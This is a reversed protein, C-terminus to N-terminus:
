KHSSGHPGPRVEDSTVTGWHTPFKRGGAGSARWKRRMRERRAISDFVARLESENLPPVNAANWQTLGGWGALRWLDEPLRRLIAGALATAAANRGGEAVGSLLGHWSPSATHQAVTEGAGHFTEWADLVAGVDRVDYPVLSACNDILLRCLFPGGRGKFQLTGPVRFVQTLLAANEDGRLAHILRLNVALAERVRAEESLPRVRFVAHFGHRTESLWHPSLPFPLLRNTLWEQKRADIEEALLSHREAAGVLDVDVGLNRFSLLGEKTRTRGFAQLSYCVACGQLQKVRALEVDFSRMSLAKWPNKSPTDDFYQLHCGPQWRLFREPGPQSAQRLAVLSHTM